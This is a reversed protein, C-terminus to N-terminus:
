WLVTKSEIWSSASVKASDAVENRLDGQQSSSRGQQPVESMGLSM